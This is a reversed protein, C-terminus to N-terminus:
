DLYDLNHAGWRFALYDIHIRVVIEVIIFERFELFFLPGCYRKCLISRGPLLDVELRNLIGFLTINALAFALLLRLLLGSINRSVEIISLM